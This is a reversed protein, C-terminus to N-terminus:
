RVKDWDLSEGIERLRSKTGEDCLAGEVGAAYATEPDLGLSAAAEYDKSLDTGFM